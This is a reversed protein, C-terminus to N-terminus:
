ELGMGGYDRMLNNKRTKKRRKPSKLVYTKGGYKIKSPRKTTKGIKSGGNRSVGVSAAIGSRASVGRNALGLAQVFGVKKASAQAQGIRVAQKKKAEFLAKRRISDIEKAQSKEVQRRKKFGRYLGKLRKGNLSM